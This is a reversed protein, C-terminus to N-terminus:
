LSLCMSSGKIVLVKVSRCLKLVDFALLRWGAGWIVQLCMCLQSTLEILYDEGQEAARSIATALERQLRDGHYYVLGTLSCLMPALCQKPSLPAVAPTQAILTGDPLPPALLETSLLLLNELDLEQLTAACSAMGSVANASASAAVSSLLEGDLAPSNCHDILRLFATRIFMRALM